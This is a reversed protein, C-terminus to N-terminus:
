KGAWFKALDNLKGAFAGLPGVLAAGGGITKLIELDAKLEIAKFVADITRVDFITNAASHEEGALAALATTAAKGAVTDASTVQLFAVVSSFLDDPLGGFYGEKSM